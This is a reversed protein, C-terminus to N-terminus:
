IAVDLNAWGVNIVPCFILIAGFNFLAMKLFSLIASFLTILFGIKVYTTLNQGVPSFGHDRV